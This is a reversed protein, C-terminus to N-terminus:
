KARALISRLFELAANRQGGHVLFPPIDGGPDSFVLYTISLKGDATPIVTWSGRVCALRVHGPAVPHDPDDETQFSVECRGTSAPQELKVHVVYDRDSVIPLAVQEYAWRETDTEKLITRKKFSGEVKEGVGKAFIADCMRQLDGPVTTTIRLEDYKSNQVARLDLTLGDVTRDHRWEPPQALVVLLLAIVARLRDTSPKRYVAREILLGHSSTRLSDSSIGATPPRCCRGEGSGHISSVTEM